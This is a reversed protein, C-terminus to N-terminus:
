CQRQEWYGGAYALCFAGRLVANGGGVKGFNISDYAGRHDDWDQWGDMWEDMWGCM